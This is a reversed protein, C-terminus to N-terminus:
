SRNKRARRVCNALPLADEGILIFDLYKTSWARELAEKPMKGTIKKPSWRPDVIIGNRGELHWLHMDWISDGLTLIQYEYGHLEQIPAAKRRSVVMMDGPSVGLARQSEDYVLQVAHVQRDLLPLEHHAFTEQIIDYLGGSIIRADPIMRFLEAIGPRLHLHEAVRRIDTRTMGAVSPLISAMGWVSQAAALTAALLPTDIERRDAPSFWQWWPHGGHLNDLCYPRVQHRLYELQNKLFPDDGAMKEMLADLPVWENEVCATEDFDCLFHEIYRLSWIFNAISGDHTLIVPGQTPYERVARLIRSQLRNWDECCYVLRKRPSASMDGGSTFPVLDGVMAFSPRDTLAFYTKYSLPVWVSDGKAGGRALPPAESPNNGIDGDCLYQFCFFM